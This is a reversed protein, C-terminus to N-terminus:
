FSKLIRLTVSMAEITKPSKGVEILSMKFDEILKWM